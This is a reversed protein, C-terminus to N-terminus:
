LINRKKLGEKDLLKININPYQECFATYKKYADDRWWGKIEVYKDENIIFFDPCYTGDKGDYTIPFKKPEYFWEIDNEDLYEAYKIEWSSRMWVTSGDKCKYWQGKGHKPPKGYFNSNAGRIAPNVQQFEKMKKLSEETHKKGYMPNNEGSFMKSFLDKQKKTKNKNIAKERGKNLEEVIHKPRKKGKLPHENEKYWKKLKEIKVEKNKNANIKNSCSLCLNNKIAYRYKKDQEESCDSCFWKVLKESSPSLESIKYGYVEETLKFNINELSM